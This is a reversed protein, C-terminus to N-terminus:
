PIHGHSVNMPKSAKITYTTFGQARSAIDEIRSIPFWILANKYNSGIFARTKGM